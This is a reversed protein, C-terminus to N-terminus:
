RAVFRTAHRRDVADDDAEACEIHVLFSKRIRLSERRGETTATAFISGYRTSTPHPASVASGRRNAERPMCTCSAYEPYDLGARKLGRDSLLFGLPEVLHLGTGTNACLRIINGTNPPIEPPYPVLDFM